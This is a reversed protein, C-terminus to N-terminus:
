RSGGDAFGRLVPDAPAPGSGGGPDGGPLMLEALGQETDAYSWAAQGVAGRLEHGARSLQRMQQDWAEAAGAIAEDVVAVGTPQGGRQRAHGAAAEARGVQKEIADRLAQLAAVRVAISGGGPVDVRM